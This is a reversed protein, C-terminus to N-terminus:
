QCLNMGGSQEESEDLSFNETVYDDISIEQGTFNPETEDTFEIYGNEGLDITENTLVSGGHNVSVEPEISAFRNWDDSERLHYLNLGQPVDEPTLRENTFLTPKGFLEILEYDETGTYVYKTGPINLHLSLDSLDYNWVDASFEYAERGEEPKYVEKIDGNKFVVRGCNHGIDEDAFELSMQVGPAAASLKLIVPLSARQATQFNLTKDENNYSCHCANWKTGWNQYAWEYWTPADYRNINDVAKVGLEWIKRDEESLDKGRDSLFEMLEDYAGEQNTIDEPLSELFEKVMRLGKDTNSGCEIKLSEPMPTIKNFDISGIGAEDDKIAELINQMEEDSADFKLNNQVWNPM